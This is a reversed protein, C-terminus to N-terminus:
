KQRKKDKGGSKNYVSSYTSDVLPCFRRTHAHAGTAGCQPCAYRSLYPCIVSGSRDKLRHSTFVSESEGNHRCFGCQQQQPQKEEPSSSSVSSPSTSCNSVVHKRRKAPSSMWYIGFFNDPSESHNCSRQKGQKIPLSMWYSYSISGPSTLDRIPPSAQHEHSVPHSFHVSSVQWEIIGSHLSSSSPSSSSSPPSVPPPPWDNWGFGSAQESPVQPVRLSAKRMSTVLDALGLYDRWPDFYKQKQESPEMLVLQSHASEHPIERGHALPWRQSGWCICRPLGPAHVPSMSLGRGSVIAAAEAVGRKM